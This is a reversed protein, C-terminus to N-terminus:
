GPVTSGLVSDIKSQHTRYISLASLLNRLLWGNAVVLALGAPYVCWAPWFVALLLLLCAAFHALIQRNMQQEDIIKKMNPAIVKGQGQNQLHLWILFPVIKYLMGVMVTMFGGFLLLVGFLLPWEQWESLAPHTSALWVTGAALGSLMAIRWCHQNVDFRARKSHRQIQLTVGAFLAAVLIIAAGLAGALRDFGALAAVTWAVVAGLMSFAFRRVFWEPYAPTIQFMPVVVYGVAALLVTVFAALGWGLHIDALLMLPLNFSWGLSIALFVGLAVTVGLGAFAIRLGQTTPNTSSVRQLAYGASVAFVTVAVSFFVASWKFLPPSFSQFAAVLLLAGLTLAVHILGTVMPSKVITAGVVVPLIQFLAGFIVQLMFGATLLHTLALVAPTWRSAFADPGSWLVLLGALIGFFPATLFFRFPTGFPPSEDYSMLAQM